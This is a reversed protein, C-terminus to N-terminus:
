SNNLQKINQTVQFGGKEKWGGPNRLRLVENRKVAASLPRLVRAHRGAESQQQSLPLTWITRLPESNVWNWYWNRSRCQLPAFHHGECVPWRSRATPARERPIPRRLPRMQRREPGMTSYITLAIWNYVRWNTLKPKCVRMVAAFCNTTTTIWRIQTASAGCRTGQRRTWWAVMDM